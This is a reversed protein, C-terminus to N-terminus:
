GSVTGSCTSEALQSDVAKVCYNQAVGGPDASRDTYTTISHGSSDLAGVLDLRDGPDAVGRTTPWRYIRWAQLSDGSDQDAPSPAQWNLTVSGGSVTATLGTPANPGHNCLNADISPSQQTSERAAGTTPDTDVGVVWYLNQTTYSQPPNNCTPTAPPNPSTASLDTCSTGTVGSCVLAATGSSGYKHYVNYYRIDQDISPVWQLDVGGNTGLQQNWGASISSPPIAQHRNLTIQLTSTTGTNGNSDYSRAAITYTGDATPFNWTFSSSTGTPVYPDDATAPIQGSPPQSGNVLWQIAAPVSTTTVNFTLSNGSTITRNVGPCTSTTSLCNVAPGNVPRAYILVTQQVRPTTTAGIPTVTVSVRKYDDPNTDTTGSAAVDPCWSGGSVPASTHDGSGDGPDDLSCATFSVSFSYISRTVSLNTGSVSSGPVVPQLAAALGSQPLQTYALNRTDEVIERALSTAAQRVRDKGTARSAVVLMGLLALLGTVLVVGAVVVEIVTFGGDDALWGRAKLWRRTWATRSM